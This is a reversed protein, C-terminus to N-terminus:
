VFSNLDVKLKALPLLKLTRAFSLYGRDGWFLSCKVNRMIGQFVLFDLGQTACDHAAHPRMQM